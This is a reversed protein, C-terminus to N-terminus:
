QTKVVRLNGTFQQQKAALYPQFCITKGMTVVEVGGAGVAAVVPLMSTGVPLLQLLSYRLWATPLKANL